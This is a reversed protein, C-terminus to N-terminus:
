PNLGDHRCAVWRSPNHKGLAIPQTKSGWWRPRDGRM